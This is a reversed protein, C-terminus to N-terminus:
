RVNVVQGDIVKHTWTNDMIYYDFPVVIRGFILNYDNAEQGFISFDHIDGIIQKIVGSSKMYFITMKEPM